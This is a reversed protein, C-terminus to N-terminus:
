LYMTTNKLVVSACEFKDFFKTNTWPCFVHVGLEPVERCEHFCVLINEGEM